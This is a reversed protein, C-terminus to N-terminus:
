DGGGNSGGSGGGGVAPRKRGKEPNATVTVAVAAAAKGNENRPLFPANGGADGRFDWIYKIKRYARVEGTALNEDGCEDDAM